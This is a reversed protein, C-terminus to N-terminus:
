IRFFCNILDLSSNCIEIFINSESYKKVFEFSTQQFGYDNDFSSFYKPFRFFHKTVHFKSLCDTLTLPKGRSKSNWFPPHVRSLTQPRKSYLIRRKARLSNPLLSFNHQRRPVSFLRLRSLINLLEAFSLNAISCKHSQFPIENRSM